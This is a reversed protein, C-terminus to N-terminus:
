PSLLPHLSPTSVGKVTAVVLADAPRFFGFDKKEFQRQRTTYLNLNIMEQSLRNVQVRKTHSTVELEAAQLAREKVGWCM